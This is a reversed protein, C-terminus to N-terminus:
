FTDTIVVGFEKKKLNGFKIYCFCGVQQTQVKNRASRQQLDQILPNGQALDDCAEGVGSICSGQIRQVTSKEYIQTATSQTSM